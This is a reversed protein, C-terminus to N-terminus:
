SSLLSFETVFSTFRSVYNLTRQIFIQSRQLSLAVLLNVIAIGAVMKALSPPSSQKADSDEIREQPSVRSQASRNHFM